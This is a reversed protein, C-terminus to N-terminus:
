DLGCISRDTEHMNAALERDLRALRKKMFDKAGPFELFQEKTIHNNELRLRALSQSALISEPVSRLQNDNAIIVSLKHLKGLEEPLSTIRNFSIRLESLCKLLVNDSDPGGPLDVLYNYSLDLVQLRSLSWILTDIQVIKNKSADISILRNGGVIQLTTLQNESMTLKSLNPPLQPVGEFRNRDLSLTSLKKLGVLCNNNCGVLHNDRLILKKLSELCSIAAPLTTLMNNSLDLSHLKTMTLVKPPITKLKQWKLALVGTASGADLRKQTTSKQGMIENTKPSRNEVSTSGLISNHRYCIMYQMRDITLALRACASSFARIGAHDEQECIQARVICGWLAVCLAVM